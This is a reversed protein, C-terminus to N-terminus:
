CEACMLGYLEGTLQADRLTQTRRHVRARSVRSVRDEKARDALYQRGQFPISRLRKAIDRTFWQGLYFMATGRRAYVLLSRRTLCVSCICGTYTGRRNNAQGLLTVQKSDSRNVDVHVGDVPFDRGPPRSGPMFRFFEAGDKYWKVSYLDEGGLDYECRLTM